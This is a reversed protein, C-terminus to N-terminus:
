YYQLGEFTYIFCITVSVNTFTIFLEVNMLKVFYKADYSLHKNPYPTTQEVVHFSLEEITQKAGKAQDIPECVLKLHQWM